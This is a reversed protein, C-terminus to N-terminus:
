EKVGVLLGRDAKSGNLPLVPFTKKLLKAKLGAQKMFMLIRDSEFLGLEHRDVLHQVERGAEVILFHMDLKAIGGKSRNVTLRV